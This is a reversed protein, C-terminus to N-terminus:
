EGCIFLADVVSGWEMVGQPEVALFAISLPTYIANWLVLVIVLFEWNRYKTSTHDITVTCLRDFLRNMGSKEVVVEDEFNSGRHSAERLQAFAKDFSTSTLADEDAGGDASGGNEKTNKTKPSSPGSTM